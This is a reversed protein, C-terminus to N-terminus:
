TPLWLLAALPVESFLHHSSKWLDRYPNQFFFFLGKCENLQIHRDESCRRKNATLSASGGPFRFKLSRSVNASIVRCFSAAADGRCRVISLKRQKREGRKAPNCLLRWKLPVFCCVFISFLFLSMLILFFTICIIRPTNVIWKHRKSISSPADM